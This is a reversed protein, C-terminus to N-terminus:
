HSRVLEMRCRISEPHDVDNGSVAGPVGDDPPVNGQFGDDGESLIPCVARDTGEDRGRDVEQLDGVEVGRDGSPHLGIVRVRLGRGGGTWQALIVGRGRWVEPDIVLVLPLLVSLAVLLSLLVRLSLLLFTFILWTHIWSITWIM